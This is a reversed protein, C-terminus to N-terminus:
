EVPPSLRKAMLIAPKGPGVITYGLKQYFSYPHGKYNEIRQIHSWVDPYLNAGSLSTMHNEDDSGLMMSTGGQAIVLAELDAVLARGIGQGQVDPRVALPHLEWTAGYYEPQAGIWGLVTGDDTIAIRCLNDPDLADEIEELADDLTPWSDPWHEAFADVLIQAAQRQADAGRESLNVIKWASGM